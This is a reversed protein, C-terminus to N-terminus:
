GPPSRGRRDDRTHGRHRRLLTWPPSREGPLLHELSYGAVQRTTKGFERRILALHAKVWEELGPVVSLDDAATFRNGKGDVVDLSLVNDASKGYVLARPGCANNAITGGFCARTITSPDPGFRLGHKGAERELQALIAGPQVRASRSEPDISLVKTMYRSTDIVVGPGVSNGAISTGGGRMTVPAGLERAVRLASVLDDADKPFVVVEPVVRYNSADTSYEARRRTSADVEGDIAEKLAAVWDTVPAQPVTVRVNDCVRPLRQGHCFAQTSPAAQFHGHPM